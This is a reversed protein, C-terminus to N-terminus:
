IVDVDINALTWESEEYPDIDINTAVYTVGDESLTLLPIDLIGPIASLASTVGPIRIVKSGAGLSNGWEVLAEKVAEAGPFVSADVQVRINVYIPQKSIRSFKCEHDFDDSDQCTYTEDGYLTIGPAVLHLRLADAIEQGKSVGGSVYIEIPNPAGTPGAGYHTRILVKTVPDDDVEENVFRPLSEKLGEISGSISGNLTSFREYLEDDTEENRGEDSALVNYTYNVGAISVVLQAVAWAPSTFLGPRTAVATVTNKFLDSRELILASPVANFAGSRVVAVTSPQEVIVCTFGDEYNGTYSSVKSHLLMNVVNYNFVTSVGNITLTWTGSTPVSTFNIQIINSCVETLNIDAQTSYNLDSNDVVLTGAPITTGNNGVFTLETVAPTAAYRSIGKLKCWSDLALGIANGPLDNYLAQMKLELQYVRNAVLDVIHGEVTEPKLLLDPYTIRIEDAISTRIDNILPLEYGLATITM